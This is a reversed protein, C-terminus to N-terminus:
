WQASQVTTRIDWLRYMLAGLEAINQTPAPGVVGELDAKPWPSGSGTNEKTYNANTSADRCGGGTLRVKPQPLGRGTYVARLGCWGM